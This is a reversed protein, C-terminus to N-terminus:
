ILSLRQESPLNSGFNACIKTFMKTIQIKQEIEASITQVLDLELHRAEMEQSIFILLLGDEVILNKPASLFIKPVCIKARFVLTCITRAM